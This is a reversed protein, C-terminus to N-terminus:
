WQNLIIRDIGEPVDPGLANVPWNNITIVAIDDNNKTLQVPDNMETTASRRLKRNITVAAMSLQHFRDNAQDVTRVKVGRSGKKGLKKEKRSARNKTGRM